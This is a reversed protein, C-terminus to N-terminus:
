TRLKDIYWGLKPKYSNLDTDYMKRVEMDNAYVFTYYPLFKIEDAATGIIKEIKVIDPDLSLKFIFFQTSESLITNHIDSPRQSVNIMGIGKGSGQTLIMKHYREIKNVSSVDMVEDVYLCNGRYERQGDGEKFVIECVRDFDAAEVIKPQYLIYDYKEKGIFKELETPSTVLIDHRIDINQIKPDYFVYRSYKSLIKKKAFSTKGVQNKGIIALMDNPKFVIADTLRIRTVEQNEQKEQREQMKAKIKIKAVVM